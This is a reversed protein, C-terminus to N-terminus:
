RPIHFVCGFNSFTEVYDVYGGDWGLHLEIEMGDRIESCRGDNVAGPFDWNTKQDWFKCTCCRNRNDM